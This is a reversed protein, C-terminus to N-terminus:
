SYGQAHKRTHTHSLKELNYVKSHTEPNYLSCMMSLEVLFYLATKWFLKALNSIRLLLPDSNGNKWIRM